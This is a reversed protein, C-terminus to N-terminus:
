GLQQQSQELEVLTDEDLESLVKAGELVDQGLLVRLGHGHQLSASWRTGELIDFLTRWKRAV